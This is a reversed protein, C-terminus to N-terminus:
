KGFLWGLSRGKRLRVNVEGINKTAILNVYPYSVRLPDHILERRSSDYSFMRYGLNELLQYLNKCSSGASTSAEDTFEVQLLPADERSFSERAGELVRSEWGEVDIKIMAVRGVLQHLRAFRDWTVCQIFEKTFSNGAIPRAISNWADFGDESTYFPFEGSEDSLAFQFCQVNHFNNLETNERLRHFTKGSPEFAYVTGLDGVRNAAILSFLGINAGVDVFVDGASLFANVFHREGKEFDDCYILRALESDFHLRMRLDHEIRAEVYERKGAQSKWWIQRRKKVRERWEGRIRELLTGRHLHDILRASKGMM